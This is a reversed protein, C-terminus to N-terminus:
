NKTVYEKVENMSKFVRDSGEIKFMKQKPKFSRKAGILFSRVNLLNKTDFLKVISYLIFPICCSIILVSLGVAVSLILCIAPIFLLLGGIIFVLIQGLKM